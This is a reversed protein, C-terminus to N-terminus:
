SRLRHSTSPRRPTRAPPAAAPARDAFVREQAQQCIRAAVAVKILHVGGRFLFISIVTLFVTETIHTTNFILVACGYFGVLGLALLIWGVIERAWFRV